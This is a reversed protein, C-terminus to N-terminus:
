AACVAKREATAQWAAITQELGSTFNTAPLGVVRAQETTDAILDTERLRDAQTIKAPAGIERGIAEAITRISVPTAGALNLVRPLTSAVLLNVLAQAADNVYCLSIKLGAHDNADHPNRDITVEKGAAISQLLNPVLMGSQNPGYIGFPRVCTVDFDNRYLALGDEAQIKSLPYWRDRRVPASEALPQFSPAYVSGTSAYIFRKVGARRALDALKLPTVINVSFLHDVREPVQRYFPSQALYVLTRTSAPLQFGAPLLGTASDIGLQTERGSSSSYAIVEEETARLQATLVKGLFGQSGFLAISM